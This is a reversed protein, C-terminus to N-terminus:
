RKHNLKNKNIKQNIKKERLGINWIKIGCIKFVGSEGASGRRFPRLVSEQHRPYSLSGTRATVAGLLRNETSSKLYNMWCNCYYFREIIALGMKTEEEVDIPQPEIAVAHHSRPADGGGPLRGPTTTNPPSLRARPPICPAIPAFSTFDFDYISQPSVVCVPGKESNWRRPWLFSSISGGPM